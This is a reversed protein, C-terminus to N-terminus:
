HKPRFINELTQHRTGSCPLIVLGLDRVRFDGIIPAISTRLKVCLCGASDCSCFSIVNAVKGILKNNLISWNYVGNVPRPKKIVVLSDMRLPAFSPSGPGFFLGNELPISPSICFLKYYPKKTSEAMQSIWASSCRDYYQEAIKSYEELFDEPERDECIEAMKLAKERWVSKSNCFEHM